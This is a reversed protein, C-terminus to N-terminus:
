AAEEVEFTSDARTSAWTRLIFELEMRDQDPPEGAIRPHRRTVTVTEGELSADAGLQRLYAFLEDALAASNVRIRLPM